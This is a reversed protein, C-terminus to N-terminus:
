DKPHPCATSQLCCPIDWFRRANTHSVLDTGKLIPPELALQGGNEDVCWRHMWHRTDPENCELEAAYTSLTVVQPSAM